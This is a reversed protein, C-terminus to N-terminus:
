RDRTELLPQLRLAHCVGLGFIGLKFLQRCFVQQSRFVVVAARQVRNGPEVKAVARLHMRQVM